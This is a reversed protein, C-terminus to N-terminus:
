SRSVTLSLSYPSLSHLRRLRCGGARDWAAGQDARRGIGRARGCCAEESRVEWLIIGMSYIDAKVSVPQGTLVEPASRRERKPRRRAANRCPPLLSSPPRRRCRLLAVPPLCCAPWRAACLPSAVCPWSALSVLRIHGDRGSPEPLEQDGAHACPGCGRDQLDWRSGAARQVAAAAPPSRHTPLPPSPALRPRRQGVCAPLRLLWTDAAAAGAAGAASGEVSSSSSRDRRRQSVSKM